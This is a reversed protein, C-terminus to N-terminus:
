ESAIALLRQRARYEELLSKENAADVLRSLPYYPRKGRARRKKDPAPHGIYSCVQCSKSAESAWPAHCIPCHRALRWWVGDVVGRPYIRAHLALGHRQAADICLMLEHLPKAMEETMEVASLIRQLGALQERDLPSKIWLGYWAPKTNPFLNCALDGLQKRDIASDVTKHFDRENAPLPLEGYCGALSRSDDGTLANAPCSSCAAVVAALGGYVRLAESIRFGDPPALCFQSVIRNERRADSVARAARLQRETREPDSGDQSARVPCTFGLSWVVFEPTNTVPLQSSTARSKSTRIVTSAKRM